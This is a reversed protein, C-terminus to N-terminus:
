EENAIEPLGAGQFHDDQVTQIYRRMLTAQKFYYQGIGDPVIAAPLDTRWIQNLGLKMVEAFVIDDGTKQWGVLFAEYLIIKEATSIGTMFPSRKLFQEMKDSAEDSHEGPPAIKSLTERTSGWQLEKDLYRLILASVFHSKADESAKSVDDVVMGDNGRFVEFILAEKQALQLNSTAKQEAAADDLVETSEKRSKQMLRFAALEIPPELISTIPVQSHNLLDLWSGAINVPTDDKNEPFADLYKM